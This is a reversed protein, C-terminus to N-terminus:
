VRAALPRNLQGHVSCISECMAFHNCLKELGRFVKKSPREPAVQESTEALTGWATGKILGLVNVNRKRQEM